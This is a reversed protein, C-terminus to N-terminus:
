TTRLAIQAARINLVRRAVDGGGGFVQQVLGTEMRKLSEAAAELNDSDRQSFGPATGAAQAARRALMDEGTRPDWRLPLGRRRRALNEGMHTFSQGSLGYAAQQMWGFFGAGGGKELWSNLRNQSEITQERFPRTIPDIKKGITEFLRNRSHSLAERSGPLTKRFEAAADETGRALAKMVIEFNKAEDKGLKLDGVLRQLARGQGMIARTAMQATQEIGLNNGRAFDALTPLMRKIQDDLLGFQALNKGVTIFLDDDISTLDQLQDALKELQPLFGARGLNGFVTRAEFARREADAAADMVTTYSRVIGQLAIYGVFLRSLNDIDRVRGTAAAAEAKALDVQAKAMRDTSKAANGMERAYEPGGIMRLYTELRDRETAL